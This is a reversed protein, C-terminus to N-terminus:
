TTQSHKDEKWYPIFMTDNFAVGAEDICACVCVCVCVVYIYIYMYLMDV